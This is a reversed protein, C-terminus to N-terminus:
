LAGPWKRILDYKEQESAQGTRVKDALKGLQTAETSNLRNKSKVGIDLEDERAKKAEVLEKIGGKEWAEELSVGNTKAYSRILNLSDNADPNTSLFDKEEIRAELSALKEALSQKEEVVKEAKVRKQDGVLSKLNTYHKFFDDKSKFANEGTRGAQENLEELSLGAVDEQGAEESSEEEFEADTELPKDDTM